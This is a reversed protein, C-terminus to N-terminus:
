KEPNKPIILKSVTGGGPPSSIELVGSCMQELRERVSRIGIHRRGDNLAKEEDFGPGNDTVTIEYRDPLERTAIKVAGGEERKRAGHRVANEAIPQLTLAPLSFDRCAIDYEVSLKGGFRMRCLELFTETHHLEQEFPIPVAVTLADMNRSLYDSFLITAEEAKEPDARCLERIMGLVNYMFHPQMQSMMLSTRMRVFETERRASIRQQRLQIFFYFLLLSLASAIDFLPFTNFVRRLIFAVIPLGLLTGFVIGYTLSLAKRYRAILHGATLATAAGMLRTGLYLLDASAQEGRVRYNLFYYVLWVAIVAASVALLTRAPWRSGAGRDEIVYNLYYVAAIYVICNFLFNLALIVMRADASSGLGIAGTDASLAGTVLLLFDASVLIIFSGRMFTLKSKELICAALLVAMVLAMVLETAFQIM